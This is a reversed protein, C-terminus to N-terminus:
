ANWVRSQALAAEGAVLGALTGKAVIGVMVYSYGNTYVCRAQGDYSLFKIGATKSVKGGWTSDPLATVEAPRSSPTGTLPRPLPDLASASRRRRRRRARPPM